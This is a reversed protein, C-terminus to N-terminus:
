PLIFVREPPLGTQFYYLTGTIVWVLGGFLEGAILGIMLPKIRGFLAVGGAHLVGTKVMWGVFFSFAMNQLAWTGWVIFIVPHLPWWPLRFRAAACGVVLLLGVALWTLQGPMPEIAALRALGEVRVADPLTGLAEADSLPGLGNRFMSTPAHRLAYDDTNGLVGREHKLSVTALGAVVMSLVLVGAFLWGARGTNTPRPSGDAEGRTEFLKLGNAVFPMVATRPDGLLLFGAFASLAFGTPGVAEYGLLGLIVAAPMFPGSVLFCGTECVIRSTVVVVLLCSAVLMLALPWDLGSAYLLAVLLPVIILVLRMAWVASPPTHAPDSPGLASARLVAAYYRRGTYLIMALMGLYSGLRLANTNSPTFKDYSVPIGLSVLVAGAAVWLMMSVGLSLSVARPLFYAFGVVTFFLYPFFVSENLAVRSANPFLTRLPRLDFRLPIDPVEPFWVHLGNLLHIALVIGFAVWFHTTRAVHPMWAGPGRATAEQWFRPIPYALLERHAWQPHFIVALCLSALGLLLAAGVWFKLPKWLAAWPVDRPDPLLQADTKGLLMAQTAPHDPRGHGVLVPGGRPPPTLAEPFAAGLLARHRSWMSHEATAPNVAPDIPPPDRGTAAKAFDPHTLATNLAEALRARESASADTNQVLAEITERGDDDTLRWVAGTATPADVASGALVAEALASADQIQGPAVRPSAGPVYSIMEQGRWASDLAYFRGPTTVFSVAYRWFNSGPFGCAALGLAAIVAFEAATLPRLRTLGLLPNGALAALLLLGFLSIPLFSGIFMTQKIVADNFHTFGAILLALLLGFALARLTM